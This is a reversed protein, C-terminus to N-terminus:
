GHKVEIVRVVGDKVYLDSVSAYAHAESLTLWKGTDKNYCLVGASVRYTQGGVTVATSGNWASNSVNRLETLRYVATFRGNKVTAAVYNGTSVSYGAEYPGVSKGNGYQVELKQDGRETVYTPTWGEDDPDFGKKDQVPVRVDEGYTVIARGYYVTDGNTSGLVILDVKGAWNTRAYAIENARIVGSTLQSLTTEKGNEFIMVSDALAKGGLKKADVNLDGSVGGTLRSLAIGSKTSSVRVLQGEYEGAKDSSVEIKATGCLLQVKGGRVIGVANSRATTGSAEVAGAVQGDETLLLTVQDGPKFKAVSDMATPLVTLKQGGLVEITAPEKPSPSCGEYYVTVRTDCVRISNTASSYTAVDYKRLDGLGASSGNKYISYGTVGGTIADFGVSSGNEYIIVAAEATSGGGVFVYTVAGTSDLSLTVTNGAHLWSSANAWTTEEGNYYTKTTGELTYKMGDSATITKTTCAAITVTRSSGAAEPVFTVAKGSKNLLLTGKRGNLIGSSTKGSALPIESGDATKFSKGDNGAASSALVTSHTQGLSDLYKGGDQKEARLLNLFLKAAQGRTLPANGNTGVGDTLGITAGVAMYSDPWVGGVNEDKYGLMRLLITVAQGVTVPREPHFKGDPYGSIITKGKAAMNIYSAAWHSPKVDPFVTVTRYLGLESEGNAAYVAMKCFQARNLQASPRFSGDGYGDLVGMLRLTEVAVATDQDTVDSFRVTEAAAAPVALLSSAMCLALLLAFLRQKM